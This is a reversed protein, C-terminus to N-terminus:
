TKSKNPHDRRFRRFEAPGKILRRKRSTQQEASASQDSVRDIERGAMVSAKSAAHRSIPRHPRSISPGLEARSPRNADEIGADRMLEDVLARLAEIAGTEPPIEHELHMLVRDALVLLQELKEDM